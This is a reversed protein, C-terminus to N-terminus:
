LFLTQIKSFTQAFLPELASFDMYKVYLKELDDHLAKSQAIAAIAQSLLQDFMGRDYALAKQLATPLEDPLASRLDLTREAVTTFVHYDNETTIFLGLTPISLHELRDPQLPCYFGEVDLGVHIAADRLSALVRHTDSAWPGTVRWLRPLALTDLYQVRGQPSIASAFLRRERGSVALSRHALLTDLWPKALQLLKEEDTIAHLTQSTDERLHNAAALYHYARTFWASIDRTLSFIDAKHASLAEEDLYMGLNLMSDVAGPMKPDVVHPATGDLLLLGLVSCVVGDLSESDSACHLYEVAYGHEELARGIRRMFTSKGVGPGGKLIFIRRADSLPLLQDFFSHFGHATNGGPFFHRSPQMM